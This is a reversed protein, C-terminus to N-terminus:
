RHGRGDADCAAVLEAPPRLLPFLERQAPIAANPAIAPRPRSVDATRFSGAAHAPIFWRPDRSPLPSLPDLGLPDDFYHSM